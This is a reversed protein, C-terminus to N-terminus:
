VQGGMNLDKVQCLYEYKELNIETNLLVVSKSTLSTGM